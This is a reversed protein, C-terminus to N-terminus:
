AMVDNHKAFHDVGIAVYNRNELINSAVQFMKIRELGKPLVQKDIMRMHKKRWSVHAYGFLAIRDPNMLLAKEINTKVISVTQKPFWINLGYKIHAIGSDRLIEVVSFVQEFSQIRNIALQVSKNFDQM